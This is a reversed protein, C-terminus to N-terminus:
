RKDRLLEGRIALHLLAIAETSVHNRIRARIAQGSTALRVRRAVTARLTSWTASGWTGDWDATVSAGSGYLQRVFNRTTSFDTFIDIQAATNASATRLGLYLWEYRKKHFPFKADYWITDLQWDPSAIYVTYVSGVSLQGIAPSVTIDTATNATIRARWVSVPRGLSDLVTIKRELLSGNSTPLSGAPLLGSLSLTSQTTTTATFTGSSPSSDPLGDNTGRGYKLLQGNHNGIFVWPRGSSDSVTALSAVDIPDSIGEFKGVRFNFTLLKDARTSASSPYAFHVKQDVLDAASCILEYATSNIVSQHITPAILKQGITDPIDSAWAVPGQEAWWFVVSEAQSISRHSVCGIDAVLLRVSWTQPDSGYVVWVSDRKFILLQGNVALLGTTAQGDRSIGSIAAGSFNEPKNLESYFTDAGDSAFMRGEHLALYRVGSPPPDNQTTGPAVIIQNNIQEDTVNIDYSGINYAVEAVMTFLFSLSTKRIYVRIKDVQSDTPSNLTLTIHHTNNGDNSTTLSKSSSRSSETGTSSNYYTLAIEYTSNFTMGGLSTVDVPTGWDTDTPKVIGFNQLLSGTWKKASTGDVIYLRNSAAEFDPYSYTPTWGALEIDIGGSTNVVCFKGASNTVVHQLTVSGAEVKPFEFQGTISPSGTLPIATHLQAGPRKGPIAQGDALSYLANNLAYPYSNPPIRDPEASTFLGGAWTATNDVFIQGM